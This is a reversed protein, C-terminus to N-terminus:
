NKGYLKQPNFGKRETKVNEQSINKQPQNQLTTQPQYSINKFTSDGELYLGNTYETLNLDVFENSYSNKIRFTDFGLTILTRVIQPNDIIVSSLLFIEEPQLDCGNLIKMEIGSRFNFSSSINKFDSNGSVTSFKCIRNTIGNIYAMEYANNLITMIESRSTDGEIVHDLLSHVVSKVHQIFLENMINAKVIIKYSLFWCFFRPAKGRKQETLDVL